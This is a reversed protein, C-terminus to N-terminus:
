APEEWKVSRHVGPVNGGWIPWGAVAALEYFTDRTTSDGMMLLRKGRMCTRAEEVGLRRYGPAGASEPDWVHLLDSLDRNNTLMPMPAGARTRWYCSGPEARTGNPLACAREMAGSCYLQESWRGFATPM